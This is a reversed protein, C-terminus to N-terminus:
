ERCPFYRCSTKSVPTNKNTKKFTKKIIKKDMGRFSGRLTDYWDPVDETIQPNNNPTSFSSFANNADNWTGLITNDNNESFSFHYADDLSKGVNEMFVLQNSAEEQHKDLVRKMEEDREKDSKQNHESYITRIDNNQSRKIAKMVDDHDREELIVFEETTYQRVVYIYAILIFIICFIILFM